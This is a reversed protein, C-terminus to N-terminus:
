AFLYPLYEQLHNMDVWITIGYADLRVLAYFLVFSYLLRSKNM